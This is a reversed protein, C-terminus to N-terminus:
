RNTKSAGAPIVRASAKVKQKHKTSRISSIINNAIENYKADYKNTLTINYMKGKIETIINKVLLELGNDDLTKFEFYIFKKNNIIEINNRLILSHSYQKNIANQFDKYKSEDLLISTYSISINSYENEFVLNPLAGFPSYKIFVENETLKNYNKPLQFSLGEYEVISKEQSYTIQILLISFFIIINKM